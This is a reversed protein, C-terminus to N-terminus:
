VEPILSCEKITPGCQMNIIGYNLYFQMGDCWWLTCQIILQVYSNVSQVYVCSSHNIQKLEKLEHSPGCKARTIGIESFDIKHM